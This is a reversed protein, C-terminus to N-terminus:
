IKLGILMVKALRGWLGHGKPDNCSSRSRKGSKVDLFRGMFWSREDSAGCHEGWLGQGKAASAVERRLQLDISRRGWLGQGKGQIGSSPAAERAPGGLFRDLTVLLLRSNAGLARFTFIVAVRRMGDTPPLAPSAQRAHSEAVPANPFAPAAM